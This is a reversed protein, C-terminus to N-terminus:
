RFTELKGVARFKGVPYLIAGGGCGGTNVHRNIDFECDYM